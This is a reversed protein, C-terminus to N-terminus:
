RDPFHSRLLEARLLRFYESTKNGITSVFAEPNQNAEDGSALEHDKESLLKELRAVGISNNAFSNDPNNALIRKIIPELLKRDIRKLLYNSISTPVLESPEAKFSTAYDAVTNVFYNSDFSEHSYNRALYKSIDSISDFRIYHLLSELTSKDWAAPIATGCIPFPTNYLSLKKGNPTKFNYSFEIPNFHLTQLNNEALILRGVAERNKFNIKCSGTSSHHWDMLAIATDLATMGFFNKLHIDAKNDILSQVLQVSPAFTKYNPINISRSLKSMVYDLAGTAALHLPSNGAQDQHNVNVGAKCLLEIADINQFETALMLPSKGKNDPIEIKNGLVRHILLLRRLRM